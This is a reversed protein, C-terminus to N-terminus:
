SWGLSYRLSDFGSGWLRCCLELIASCLWLPLPIDEDRPEAKMSPGVSHTLFPHSLPAPSARVLTM